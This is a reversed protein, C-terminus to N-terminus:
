LTVKKVVKTVSEEEDEGHFMRFLDFPNTFQVNNKQLGEEGYKDYIERKNNDSIVEYAKNLM